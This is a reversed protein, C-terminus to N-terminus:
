RSAWLREFHRRLLARDRIIVRLAELREANQSGPIWLKLYGGDGYKEDLHQRCRNWHGEKDLEPYHDLSFRLTRLLIDEPDITRDAEAILMGYLSRPPTKSSARHDEAAQAICEIQQPSFWGPLRPDERIIRASVNHHHERGESLGTDHFAAATFVIEPDAEPYSEALHLAERIVQCAHGERHAADFAAYRPIIEESVYRYLEPRIGAPVPFPLVAGSM